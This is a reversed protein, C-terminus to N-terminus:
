GLGGRDAKADVPVGGKAALKCDPTEAALYNAQAAAGRFVFHLRTPLEQDKELESFALRVGPTAVSNTDAMGCEAVLEEVHRPDAEYELGDQTWRIVRNLVVCESADEPGPGLRPQTTLEYHKRMEAEFWDLERKSGVTTFDDGHVTSM